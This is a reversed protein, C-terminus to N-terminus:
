QESREAPVLVNGPPLEINFNQRLMNFGKLWVVTGFVALNESSYHEGFVKCNAFQVPTTGNYVFTVNHFECNSYSTGDLLVKENRFTRGVVTTPQYPDPWKTFTVTKSKARGIIGIERAIFLVTAGLVLVLPAFGWWSSQLIASMARSLEPVNRLGADMALIIAAVFIAAYGVWDWFDWKSM